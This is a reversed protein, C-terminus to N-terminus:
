KEIGTIKQANKQISDELELANVGKLGSLYL